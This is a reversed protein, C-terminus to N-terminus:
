PTHYSKFQSGSSAHGFVSSIKSLRSQPPAEEDRLALFDQPLMNIGIDSLTVQDQPKLCIPRWGKGFNYEIQVTNGRDTEAQTWAISQSSVYYDRNCYRVLKMGNSYEQYLKHSGVFSGFRDRSMFYFDGPQPIGGAQAPLTLLFTLAGFLAYRFTM